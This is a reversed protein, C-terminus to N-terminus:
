IMIAKFDIIFDPYIHVPICDAMSYEHVDDEALDYVTIRDKEPDLIWYERVGASRYKFLKISYDMRRSSPSVIEIIWDPAGECGKDNLKKPDCIVSIDPEVYNLHDKNLFVAFPATYVMCDGSHQRIYQYITSSLRMSIAQHIRSPPAMNYLQGDILEARIGDPLTYIDDITFLHKEPLPM